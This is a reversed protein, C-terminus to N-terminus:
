LVQSTIKETFFPAGRRKGLIACVHGCFVFTSCTSFVGVSLNNFKCRTIGVKRLESFPSGNLHLANYAIRISCILYVGNEKQNITSM